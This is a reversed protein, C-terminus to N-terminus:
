EISLVQIAWRSGIIIIDITAVSPITGTDNVVIRLCHRLLMELSGRDASSTTFWLGIGYAFYPM